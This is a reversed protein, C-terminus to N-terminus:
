SQIATSGPVVIEIEGTAIREFHPRNFTLLRRAGGKLACALILGDYVTGGTISRQSIDQLLKWGEDGDLGVLTVRRRLSSELIELADKPGLRHPPPMRTMVSYAEVLAPLPLVIESQSELLAILQTSAAEHHVHWSLLGAVVVNTDVATIVAAPDPAM